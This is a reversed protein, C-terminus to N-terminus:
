VVRVSLWVERRATGIQFAVMVRERRRNFKLIRDEAGKLPGSLVAIRNNEDMRVESIGVVDEEDAMNILWEIEDVPIVHFGDGEDELFGWAGRLRFTHEFVSDIDDTGVLVYGPFMIKAQEDTGTKRALDSPLRVTMRPLFLRAKIGRRALIDEIQRSIKEESGTRV